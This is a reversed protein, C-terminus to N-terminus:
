PQGTTPEGTGVKPRFHNIQTRLSALLTATSFPKPIYDHIGLRRIEKLVHGNGYATILIKIPSPNVHIRNVSELFKLGNMGPLRYDAIIVDYYREELATLGEEATELAVISCGESDFFVSLSDRVWEDDDILLVAMNRLEDFLDM